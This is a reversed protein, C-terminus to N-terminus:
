DAENEEELEEESKFMDHDPNGGSNIYAVLDRLEDPNLPNILGPPMQSVDVHERSVVQDRPVIKPEADPDQSYIEINDGREAVLGVITDGDRMTVRTSSYQDSILINPDIIKEILGRTSFRRNVTSLDPGMDGGYGDFRHCAACTTAFFVNRGREFNRDAGSGLHGSLVDMAEDVSWNRGPGEPATIEFDPQQVLSVGTIDAVADREDESAHSLADRRMDELFGTYSAGGMRDAANNIFTFYERRQEITWGESLTRLMFAYHLEQTPPPNEIMEMITSGYRESRQLIASWGETEPITENQMLTLAVDIVRSDRLRVLVRILETNVRNDENPLYQQLKDTIQQTTQNGPEGLRIITLAMARLYGLKQDADLSSIDMELLSRYADDRYDSSATRALAVLATIRAQPRNETLARDAWSDVPQHEIAVRAAYRLIRDESALHPWAADVAAPDQVGHFSELHHRLERVKRAEPDDKVEEPATSEDGTYVVRYLHSQQNRGGTVFYMAGDNGIVAQVLPLPAGSLFEEVEATYSAGNPTLHAAYLTGFTWDLAFISRQYKAPFSAGKGTILGVPSGPGIEFLPPLKDEYYNPWKGSGSRWGFDSGSTAHVIATARYWPTGFDWEMDSDYTFLEDHENLVVDYHNRYGMSVMEWETADANTRAIWGGPAMIGRAHGRADWLRPLLLDEDWSAVRNRNLEAPPPTFNGAAVYLGNGDATKVVAHNGHEGVYGPGGLFELMNLEGDDRSDGLRYLGSGNQRQVNLYLHDFAWLIGQAGSIPMLLREVEVEPDDLDGGVKIRYTGRQQQDSAILHGDGDLGLSVWSGQSELPVEYLMQAEFGPLTEIEQEGMQPGQSSEEEVQEEEAEEVEDGAVVEESEEDDSVLGSSSSGCSIIILPIMLILVFSGIGIKIWTTNMM